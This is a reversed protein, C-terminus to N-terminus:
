TLVSDGAHQDGSKKIKKLKVGSNNNLLQKIIKDYDKDPRKLFQNKSSIYDEIINTLITVLVPYKTIINYSYNQHKSKEVFLSFYKNPESNSRVGGDKLLNIELICIRAIIPFFISKLDGFVSELLVKKPVNSNGILKRTKEIERYCHSILPAVVYLFKDSTLKGFSIKDLVSKLSKERYISRLKHKM